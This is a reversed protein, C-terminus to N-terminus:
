ENGVSQTARLRFYLPSDGATHDGPEAAEWTELDTSSELHLTVAGLTNNPIALTVGTTGTKHGSQPKTHLPQKFTFPQGEESEPAHVNDSINSSFYVEVPGPLNYSNLYYHEQINFEMTRGDPTKFGIVEDHIRYNSINSLYSRIVSFQEGENITVSSSTFAYPATFTKDGETYERNVIEKERIVEIRSGPATPQSHEKRLRCFAGRVSSFSGPQVANWNILDSGQELHISATKGQSIRLMPRKGHEAPLDVRPEGSVRILWKHVPSGPSPETEFGVACPGYFTLSADESLDLWSNHFQHDIDWELSELSDYSRIEEEVTSVNGLFDRLLIRYIQPQDLSEETLMHEQLVEEARTLDIWSLYEENEIEELAVIQGESNLVVKAKPRQEEPLPIQEGTEPDEELLYNSTGLTIIPPASFRYKGLVYAGMETLSAKGNEINSFDFYDHAIDEWNNGIEITHNMTPLVQYGLVSATQGDKLELWESTSDHSVQLIKLYDACLSAQLLFLLIFARLVIM